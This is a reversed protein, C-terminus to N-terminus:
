EARWGAQQASCSMDGQERLEVHCTPSRWLRRGSTSRGALEKGEKAWSFERREEHETAKGVDDSV